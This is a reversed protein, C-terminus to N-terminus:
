RGFFKVVTPVGKQNAVKAINAAPEIGLAPIGKSVFNKLLYGDNSALEIALSSTDLSLRAVIMEVYDAAHKLWTESYSSFYAYESFIEEASVFVPLQVLYCQHCVQVHLPYFHEVKNLNSPSIYSECLPPIGLDVFTQALATSCFRCNNGAAEPADTSSSIRPAREQHAVRNATVTTQM